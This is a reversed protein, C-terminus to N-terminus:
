KLYMELEHKTHVIMNSPISKDIYTLAGVVAHDGIVIHPCKKSIYIIAGSGIYAGEGISISGRILESKEPIVDNMYEGQTTFTAPILKAGAGIASYKGLRINGGGGLVVLNSVEAGDEMVLRRPAIISFQGIRCNNGIIISHNDNNIM